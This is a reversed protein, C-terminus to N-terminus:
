CMENALGTVLDSDVVSISAGDQLSSDSFGSQLSCPYLLDHVPARLEHLGGTQHM